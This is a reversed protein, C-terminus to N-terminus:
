ETNNNHWTDCITIFNKILDSGNPTLISEPHFQVGYVPHKAHQLAMIENIECRATIKIPGDTPIDAVLSHYRGVQLPNPLEAFLASKDHTMMSAKGHTPKQSRIIRGGYAEAIAQHGLCVGLIPTTAGFEKIVEISIGADKPACPGPSIIIAEPSLAKIDNITIKDNRKVVCDRGLRVIYRTLNYVFSDYNDIVLIM